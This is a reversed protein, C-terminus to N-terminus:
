QGSGSQTMTPEPAMIMKRKEAQIFGNLKQYGEHTLRSMALTQMTTGIADRQALLGARASATSTAASNNEAQVQAILQARLSEFTQSINLASQLDGGSLNAGNLLALQRTRNNDSTLARFFLRYATADPILEPNDAGNVGGTLMSIGHSSEMKHVHQAFLETSSALLYLNLSFLALRKM